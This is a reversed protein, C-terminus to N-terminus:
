DASIESIQPYFSQARTGENKRRKNLGEQRGPTLNTRRRRCEANLTLCKRRFGHSFNEKAGGGKRRRAAGYRKGRSPLHTLNM